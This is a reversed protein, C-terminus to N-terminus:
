VTNIGGVVNQRNVLYMCIFHNEDHHPGEPTPEGEEDPTAVIQIQHVDINWPLQIASNDLPFHRFNFEILEYLSLNTLTLDKLRAIGL